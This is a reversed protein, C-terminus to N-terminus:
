KKTKEKPQTLFKSLPQFRDKPLIHMYARIGAEPCKLFKALQAATTGSTRYKSQLATLQVASIPEQSRGRRPASPRKHTAGPSAEEASTSAYGVLEAAWMLEASLAKSGARTEAMSRRQQDSIDEYGVCTKEGNPYEYRPRRTWHPEDTGCQGFAGGCVRREEDLVECYVRYGHRGEADTGLDELHEPVTRKSRKFVQGFITWGEIKVHERGGIMVSYNAASIKKRVALAKARNLDMQHSADVEAQQVERRRQAPTLRKVIALPLVPTGNVAAIQKM